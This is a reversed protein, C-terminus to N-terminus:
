RGALKELEPWERHSPHNRLKEPAAKRKRKSREGGFYLRMKPQNQPSDRKGKKGKGPPRSLNKLGVSVTKGGHKEIEKKEQPLSRRTKVFDSNSTGFASAGEL